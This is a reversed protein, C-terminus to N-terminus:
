RGYEWPGMVRWALNSERYAEGLAAVALGNMLMMTVQGTSENRWLLDTRGDGDYDGQAVVKWALNPEAHIQGRAAISAGNMLMGYVQGTTEHRWLLDSKGDGNLDPAALIKWRTDAEVYAQTGSTTFGAGAVTITQIFVQGTAINQWALQNAKGSGAFDGSGVIRWLTNPEAYAIGRTGVTTGNMLMVFVQGSASNWWVIDSKGDGDIDPTQVVRWAPNAETWVVAGAAPMGSGNFPMVYVQGTTANRWLLDSVGDGNFDGQAVISWALNPETYALAASVVTFDDMLLRFIQGTSLNRYLIDSRRDGNLDGAAAKGADPDFPRVDYAYTSSSAGSVGAITVRYLTEPNVVHGAPLQWVLTNDGYGFGGDAITSRSVVEVPLASGNLTVSVSAGAFNANPFGFSWYQGDVSYASPFLELPVYGRPPWSVGNPVSRSVSQDFVYLANFTGVQGMAFSGKTSDLIWRRHGVDPSGPDTMYLPLSDIVGVALNSQRAGTAGLDTYCPTGPQPFHNISNSAAMILATAQQQANRSTDLTVNGPLGTMARLFNIRTLTWDQFAASITGPTCTATSGTSALAPMPVRYSSFYAAAVAARNSTDIAPVTALPLGPDVLAKSRPANVEIRPAAGLEIGEQSFQALVSGAVLAWGAAALRAAFRNPSNM